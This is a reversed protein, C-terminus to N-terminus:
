KVFWQTRAVETVMRDAQLTSALCILATVPCLDSMDISDYLARANNSCFSVIDPTRVLCGFEVAEVEM